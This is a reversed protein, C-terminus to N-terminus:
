LVFVQMKLGAECDGAGASIFSVKGTTNFTYSFSGSGDNIQAKSSDCTLYGVEDVVAVTCPSKFRFHFTDNVQIIKARWWERVDVGVTWGLNGGVEFETALTHTLALSLIVFLWVIKSASSAM